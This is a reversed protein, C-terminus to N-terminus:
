QTDATIHALGNLLQEVQRQVRPPQRVVLMGSIWAMAGCGGNEAWADPEITACIVAELRQQADAAPLDISAPFCAVAASPRPHTAAAQPSPRRRVARGLLERVWAQDNRLLERVNYIRTTMECDLDDRTSVIVLNAAFTDFGLRLDPGGSQDLVLQLVLALPLRRVHLTIPKDREIGADELVQYRVVLNTDTQEAIWALVSQLPAADFSATEITRALPGPAGGFSDGVDLAPVRPPAHDRGGGAATSVHNSLCLAVASAILVTACITTTKMAPVGPHLNLPTFKM